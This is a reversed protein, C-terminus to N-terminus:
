SREYQGTRGARYDRYGRWSMLLKEMRHDELLVVKILEHRMARMERIRFDPFETGYRKAVALRNRTIYYRRLASHHSVFVPGLLRRQRMEGMRHDLIAAGCEFVGYGAAHLRLCFEHDVQDIFLDEDFGGVSEWAAISTLSGSTITTLAGRCGSFVEPEPGNALRLVPSVLGPTEVDACSRLCASLEFLMRPGPSSDQDLTLAWLYGCGRSASMGTNLAAGLGSNRGMAIYALGPIAELAASISSDPSETNDIAFVQGLDGAYSALNFVTNADPRYLVVVAAVEEPQLEKM